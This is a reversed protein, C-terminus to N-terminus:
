GTGREPARLAAQLDGAVDQLLNVVDNVEQRILRAENAIGDVTGNGDKLVSQLQEVTDRIMETDSEVRGIANCEAANAQRISADLRVSARDIAREIRFLMWAVVGFGVFTLTAPASIGLFRLLILGGLFVSAFGLVPVRLRPVHKLM